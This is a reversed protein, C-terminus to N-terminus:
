KRGPERLPQGDSEAGELLNDVDQKILKLLAVKGEKNPMTDVLVQLVQPVENFIDQVDISLELVKKLKM